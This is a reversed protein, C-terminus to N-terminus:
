FKTQKVLIAKTCNSFFLRGSLIKGNETTLVYEAPVKCLQDLVSLATTDPNIIFVRTAGDPCGVALDFNLAAGPKSANEVAPSSVAANGSVAAVNAKESNDPVVTQAAKRKKKSLVSPIKLSNEGSGLSGSREGYVLCYVLLQAIYTAFNNFRHEDPKSMYFKQDAAPMSIVYLDRNKEPRRKLHTYISLRCQLDKTAEYMVNFMEKYHAFPCGIVPFYFITTKPDIVTSMQM